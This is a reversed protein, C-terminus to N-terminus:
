YILNITISQIFLILTKNIEYHKKKSLSVTISNIHNVCHFGFMLTLHKLLSILVFGTKEKEKQM